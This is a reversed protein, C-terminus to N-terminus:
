TTRRVSVVGTSGSAWGITLPDNVMSAGWALGTWGVATPAIIQFVLDYKDPAPSPVAVRFTIAQGIVFAAQYESFTFGTESDRVITTDAASGESACGLLAALYALGLNWRMKFVSNRCPLAPYHSAIVYVIFLPGIAIKAIVRQAPEQFNVITPKEKPKEARIGERLKAVGTRPACREAGVVM